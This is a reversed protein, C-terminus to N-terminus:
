SSCQRYIIYSTMVFIEYNGWSVLSILRQRHIEIKEPIKDLVAHQCVPFAVVYHILMPRRHNLAAFNTVTVIVSKVEITRIPQKLLVPQLRYLPDILCGFSIFCPLGLPRLKLGFTHEQSTVTYCSIKYRKKKDFFTDAEPKLNSGINTFYGNMINAKSKDSIEVEGMNNELPGIFFSKKKGEFKKVISWFEKSSKQKSFQNKWYNVKSKIIM